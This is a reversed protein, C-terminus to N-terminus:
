FIFYASFLSFVFYASFLSFIFCASFLSFHFLSFVVLFFSVLQFSHFFSVLQFSHFFSYWLLFKKNTKDVKKMQSDVYVVSVVSVDFVLYSYCMYIFNCYLHAWLRQFVFFERWIVGFDCIFLLLLFRWCIRWDMLIFILCVFMFSIANLPPVLISLALNM